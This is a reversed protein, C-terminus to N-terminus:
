RFRSSRPSLPAVMRPQGSPRSSRLRWLTTLSFYYAGFLLTGGPLGLDAYAEVITNHAVHGEYDAFKNPGLGFLPSGRVLPLSESWLELRSRGPLSVPVM